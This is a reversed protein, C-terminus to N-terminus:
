ISSNNKYFSSCSLDLFIYIVNDCYKLRRKGYHENTRTILNIYFPLVSGKTKVLDSLIHCYLVEMAYFKVM